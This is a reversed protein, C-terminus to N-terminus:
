KTEENSTLYSILLEKRQKQFEANWRFFQFIQRLDDNIKKKRIRGRVRRGYGRMIKGEILQENVL